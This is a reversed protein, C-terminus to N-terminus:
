SKTLKRGKTEVQRLVQVNERAQGEGGKKGSNTAHTQDRGGSQLDRRVGIELDPDPVVDEVSGLDEGRETENM